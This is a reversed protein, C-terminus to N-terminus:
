TEQVSIQPENRFNSGNMHFHETLDCREVQHMAYLRHGNLGQNLSLM